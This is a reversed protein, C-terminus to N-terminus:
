NCGRYRGLVLLAHEAKGIPEPTIADVGLDILVVCRRRLAPRRPALPLDFGRIEHQHDARLCITAPDAPVLSLTLAQDRFSPMM